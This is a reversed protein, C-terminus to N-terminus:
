TFSFSAVFSPSILHVHHTACHVLMPQKDEIVEVGNRHQLIKKTVIKKTVCSLNGKSDLESRSNFLLHMTFWLHVFRRSDLESDKCRRHVLKKTVDEINCLRAGWVVENVNLFSITHLHM